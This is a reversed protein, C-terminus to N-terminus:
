LEGVFPEDQRYAIYSRGWWGVDLHRVFRWQSKRQFELFARSVGHNPSGKYGAFLDDVYVVTGDQLLPDIFDFVPVASEYLDCDVTVLAPRVGKKLISEQLEGNLSDSYFGQVTKVRDLYLGHDEVLKLFEEEATLLAGKRWQEM